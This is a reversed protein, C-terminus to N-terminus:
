LRKRSVGRRLAFGCGEPKSLAGIVTASMETMGSQRNYPESTVVWASILSILVVATRGDADTKGQSDLRGKLIILRKMWAAM